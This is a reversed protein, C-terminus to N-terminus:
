LKIRETILMFLYFRMMEDTLYDLMLSYALMSNTANYCDYGNDKCLEFDFCDNNIINGNLKDICNSKKNFRIIVDDIYDIYVLTNLEKYQTVIDYTYYQTLEYDGTYEYKIKYDSESQQASVIFNIFLLLFLMLKKM